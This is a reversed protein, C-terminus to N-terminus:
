IRAIDNVARELTADLAQICRQGSEFQRTASMMEVMEFIANVNSAELHEQQIQVNKAPTAQNSVWLNEQLRTATSLDPLAAIKLRNVLNGDVIVQGAPNIEWKTGSITVPGNEGLVSLGDGTVLRGDPTLMFAGNRTYAVDQTSQVTFYGNGRIAFDCRNGTFSITGESPDSQSIPYLSLPGNVSMRKAPSTLVADVLPAFAGNTTVQRKFGATNVNALNHAIVDLHTEQSLLGTAATYLGRIM